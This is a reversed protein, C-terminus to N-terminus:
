AGGHCEAPRTTQRVVEKLHAEQHLLRTKECGLLTLVHEVHRLHDQTLVLQQSARYHDLAVTM